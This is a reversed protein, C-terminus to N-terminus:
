KQVFNALAQSILTLSTMSMIVIFNSAQGLIGVQTTPTMILDVM